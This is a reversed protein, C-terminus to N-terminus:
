PRRQNLYSPLGRDTQQHFTTESIGLVIIDGVHLPSQWQWKISPLYPSLVRLDDMMPNPNDMFYVM